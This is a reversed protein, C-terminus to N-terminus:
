YVVLKEKAYKQIIVKVNIYYQIDNGIGTYYASKLINQRKLINVQSIKLMVAHSHLHREWMSSYKRNM